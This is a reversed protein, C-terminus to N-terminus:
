CPGLKRVTPARSKSRYVRWCRRHAIDLWGRNTSGAESEIDETGYGCAPSVNKDYNRLTNYMKRPCIDQWRERSRSTTDYKSWWHLYELMTSSLEIVTSLAASLEGGSPFLTPVLVEFSPPPLNVVDSEQM